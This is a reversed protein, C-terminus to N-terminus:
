APVPHSKPRANLRHEDAAFGYARVIRLQGHPANSDGKLRQSHDPCLGAAQRLGRLDESILVPISGNDEAIDAQSGHQAVQSPASNCANKHFPSRANESLGEVTREHVLNVEVQRWHKGATRNRGDPAAARSVDLVCNM